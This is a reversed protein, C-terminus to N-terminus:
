LMCIPCNFYTAFDWFLRVVFFYTVWHGFARWVWFNVLDEKGVWTAEILYNISSRFAQFLPGRIVIIYCIFVRNWKSSFILDKRARGSLFFITKTISYFPFFLCFVRSYAFFFEKHPFLGWLTRCVSCFFREDIWALKLCIIKRM